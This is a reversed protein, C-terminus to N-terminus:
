FCIVMATTFKSGVLFQILIPLSALQAAKHKTASAALKGAAATSGTLMAVGRSDM